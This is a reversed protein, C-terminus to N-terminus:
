STAIEFLDIKQGSKLTVIAKKVSSIKKENRRQGVRKTKGKQVSTSIGIVNVGFREEVARKVAPKDASIDVIFTFKSNGAIAMSRETILPKIIVNQM